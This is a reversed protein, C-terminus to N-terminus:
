IQRQIGETIISKMELIERNEKSTEKEKSNKGNQEYRIKKVKVMDEKLETLKKLFTIKFNKDPDRMLDRETVNQQNIKGKCSVYKRMNKTHCM